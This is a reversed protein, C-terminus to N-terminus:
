DPVPRHIPGRLYVRELADWDPDPLTNGQPFPPVAGAGVATLVTAHSYYLRLAQLAFDHHHRPAARRCSELAAAAAADDLDSFVAGLHERAWLEVESQFAHLAKLDISALLDPAFDLEGAPPLGRTADGPLLLDLLRRNLM